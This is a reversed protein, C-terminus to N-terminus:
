ERNASAGLVLGLAILMLAGGMLYLRSRTDRCLTAFKGGVTRPPELQPAAAVSLLPFPSHSGLEDKQGLDLVGTGQRVYKLQRQALREQLIPDEAVHKVFEENIAVEKQLHELDLRLRESQWLLRQNEDAEPILVCAAIIAIGACVFMITWGGCPSTAASKVPQTSDM